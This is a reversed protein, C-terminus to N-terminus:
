GDAKEQRKLEAHLLRHHSACLWRVDLPKSYDDHHGNINETIGCIECPRPVLKGTRRAEKARDYATCKDPNLRRYEARYIRDQERRGERRIASKKALYGRHAAHWARIRAREAATHSAYYEAHCAKECAKCKGQLGDAYTKNRYFDDVSKEEGCKKCVKTEPMATDGCFLGQIPLVNTIALSDKHSPFTVHQRSLATKAEQRVM